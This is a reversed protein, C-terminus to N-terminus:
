IYHNTKEFMGIDLIKEPILSTLVNEDVSSIHFVSKVFINM